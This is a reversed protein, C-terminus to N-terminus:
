AQQQQQQQPQTASQKTFQAKLHSTLEPTNDTAMFVEYELRGGDESLRWVRRVERVHPAKSSSTRTLSVTRVDVVAAGGDVSLEGEEVEVLGTVQAVCCQVRRGGGALRWYGSESHAPQGRITTSQGYSLIPAQPKLATFTITETYQFPRITPYYGSGSGTWVGILGALASLDPHLTTSPSATASM